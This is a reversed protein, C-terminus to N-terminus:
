AEGKPPLMWDPVDDDSQISNLVGIVFAKPDARTDDLTREVAEVVRQEPKYERFLKNLFAGGGSNPLAKWRRFLGAKFDEGAAAATAASKSKIKEADVEAEAEAEKTAAVTAVTSPTAVRYSGDSVSAIYEALAGELRFWERKTRLDAFQRHRDKELQATGRETALISLGPRSVRLDAVRAWPNRSFGIKVENAGPEAAYYVYGPSSSQKASDEYRERNRYSAYNILVWGGEVKRIRRGEDSTTRSDPDPSELIRLIERTRDLPIMCLHALAPAAIRVFGGADSQSLLAIWARLVDHPQVWLTSKVIGADLKTFATM